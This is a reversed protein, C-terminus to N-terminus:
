PITPSHSAPAQGQADCDYTSGQYCSFVPENGGVRPAQQTVAPPPTRLHLSLSLVSVTMCPSEDARDQQGLAELGGPVALTPMM